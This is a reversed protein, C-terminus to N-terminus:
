FRATVSAAIQDANGTGLSRTTVTVLAPSGSTAYFGEERILNSKAVFVHAYSLNLALAPSINWTAGGSLWARDGDPVRTTLHQPNTPTRDFMTGARLTWAPSVDYESGMSVSFSDRYDLQKETAGAATTVTIGKFRSWNYWRATVMARLRPTLRHMLSATAIDPLALPATAALDRNAPALPGQLGSISQTGTLRHTIGSRYHIGFHTNGGTYFLGANWGVAWDEGTVRALGDALQPSLQPLANTLTAKAFQVNVGGGVSLNDNLKYAASPQVNYTKLDTHLSDYRGFFGADYDLKLGFPATVGLGLWLADTVQATAYFSPVPIVSDFPEGGSNGAVPVGGSSVVSGPLPSRTTARNTQGASASLVVGGASMQIGPLETMAAPNFFLTSPDDAAAAGGSLARGTEKPSQEQLYFGGAVAPCPAAVVGALFLNAIVRCRLYM